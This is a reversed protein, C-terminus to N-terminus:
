PLAISPVGPSPKNVTEIDVEFRWDDYRKVDDPARLPTQTSLSYVGRIFDGERVLGWTMSGTIPDPWLRRLHRRTRPGRRDELLEELRTPLAKPLAPSAEYYSQLAARIQEGRFALEMERQRRSEIAWSQSLAMLMVGSIAVWWLLLLYSFGQQPDRRTRMMTMKKL